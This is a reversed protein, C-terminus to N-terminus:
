NIAKGTNFLLVIFPSLKDPKVEDSNMFRCLTIQEEVVVYVSVAVIPTEKACKNKFIECYGCFLVHM